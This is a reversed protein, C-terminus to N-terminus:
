VMCLSELSGLSVVKLYDNKKTPAVDVLVGPQRFDDLCGTPTLSGKEIQYRSM